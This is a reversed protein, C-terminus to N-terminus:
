RKTLLDALAQAIPLGTMEEIWGWQGNPNIELFVVDGTPTVILDIAAFALDFGRTLRLCADRVEPSLRCAYHPTNDLDYHRWDIATRPTAQSEIACAFIEEGVVTVRLEYAKEIYAQYIAPAAAISEDDALDDPGLPTTFVMYQLDPPAVRPPGGSVLKAVVRYDHRECFARVVAPDASICTEPIRLGLSRARQLQLAKHGGLRLAEPHSVWLGDITRLVGHVSASWEQDAFAVSGSELQGPARIPEPRRWWVSGVELTDIVRDDIVLRPAPGSGSDTFAAACGVGVRDTDFRIVDHGASSLRDTVLEVHTDQTNSVVLVLTM